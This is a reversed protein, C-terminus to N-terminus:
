SLMWSLVEGSGECLCMRIGSGGFNSRAFVDWALVVLRGDDLDGGSSGDREEQRVRLSLVGAHWYLSASDIPVPNPYSFHTCQGQPTKSRTPTSDNIRNQTKPHTRTARDPPPCISVFLRLWKTVIEAVEKVELKTQFAQM